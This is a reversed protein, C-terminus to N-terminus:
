VEEKQKDMKDIAEFLERWGRGPDQRVTLGSLGLMCGGSSFLNDILLAPMMADMTIGNIADYDLAM